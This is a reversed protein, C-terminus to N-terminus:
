WNTPGAQYCCEASEWLLELFRIFPGARFAKEADKEEITRTAKKM